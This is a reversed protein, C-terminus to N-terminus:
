EKRLITNMASTANLGFYDCYYADVLLTNPIELTNGKKGWSDEIIMYDGIQMHEEFYSIVKNVEVHADEVIIWPHPLNEVDFISHIEESNGQLFTVGNYSVDPPDIDMSYVHTSLNYLKCLDAMWIASAGEGSGIELITAPSNEWIIMPYLAFDYVTKGLEIGRWSICDKVGQSMLFNDIHIHSTRSGASFKEAQRRDSFSIYRKQNVINEVDKQKDKSLVNLNNKLYTDFM